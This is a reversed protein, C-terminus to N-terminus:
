TAARAEEVIWFAAGEGLNLGTPTSFPAIKDTSTAKISDFGAMTALCMADTGGALVVDTIGSSILELALALVCTSSSCATSIVWTSGDIGLTHTLAKGLTHYRILLNMKRDLKSGSEGNLFEYQQQASLLGGNCTGVVLGARSGPRDERSWSLGADALAQRAASLGLQLYRDNLLSIEDETLGARLPDFGKVEGGYPTRFPSTDFTKIPDIGSRASLVSDVFSERNNGIPSIVGMGTVVARRVSERSM